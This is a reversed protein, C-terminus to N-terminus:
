SALAHLKWTTLSDPLHFQISARGNPATEISPAWFATEEFVHRLRPTFQQDTSSIRAQARTGQAAKVSAVEASETQLKTASSTVTVTDTTSGVNLRMDVTTLAYTHVSVENVVASQFGPASFEATYTGSALNNVLFMGNAMTQVTEITTSGDARKITVNAKPVVAGAPDTVTGGIAGTNGNFMGDDVAAVPTLDSGSQETMAHLFQAIPTTLRSATDAPQVIQIALMLRTVPRNTASNVGAESSIVHESQTYMMLQTVVLQLKGGLPDHLGDVDIGVAAFAAKAEAETNPYTQGAGTWADLASQMRQETPRFYDLAPSTWLPWADTTDTEAANQRFVQVSYGRGRVALSYRYQKGDPDLVADLNLGGARAAAKLDNVDAPLPRDAQFTSNLIETLRLGPLAFLNRRAVEVSFDDDTGFKKDPGASTFSLTEDREELADRTRYPIDWPDLLSSDLVGAARTISEIASADEPMRVPRANLIARGVPELAKQMMTDFSSREEDYDHTEMRGRANGAYELVAEAALDLDDSIAQTLDTRDLSALSVGGINEGSSWWGGYWRENQEEETQARQEVGEDFVGVGFAGSVAAGAGTRLLLNANVMAGPAYSEALGNVNIRLERNEPYLVSKYTEDYDRWSYRRLRGSQFRYAWLTVLGHFSGDAPITMPEADRGMRIREHALLGRGSLVDVDVMSGTEAHVIAEIPQNPKLLSHRVEVWPGGLYGANVREDAISTRGEADKATLRLGLSSSQDKVDEAPYRLRVKAVGYQNTTVTAARGRPASDKEMWDLTIRCSAPVGDAYSATVIYDGERDNGGLENLYLHVPYRTLRVTFNRPESRGTTADTVIAHYRVDVYREYENDKIEALGRSEDLSITADGNADLAATKEPEPKEDPDSNWRNEKARAVRVQGQTVAKGFLYGAHLHVVPTQGATYYGNDMTATVTFEPLDYREISLPLRASGSWDSSSDMAFEAQYDGTVLHTDTKWDYSAIGFRDTEVATKLLTKSQPDYITLTLQTKDVARGAGDFVLARLHVTEGPKHLPKDTEIHVATQDFTTLDSELSA